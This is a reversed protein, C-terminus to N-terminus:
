PRSAAAPQVPTASPQPWWPDDWEHWLTHLEPLVYTAFLESNQLTLEKPMSGFHCLVMLHGVRIQQAVEKLRDRVTTPSGAIIYGNEVFDKWTLGQRIQM